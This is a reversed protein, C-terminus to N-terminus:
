LLPPASPRPMNEGLLPTESTDEKEELEGKLLTDIACLFDDHSFGEEEFHTDSTLLKSFMGAAVYPITPTYAVTGFVLEGFVFMELVVLM